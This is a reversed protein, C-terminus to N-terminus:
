PSLFSKGSNAKLAAKLLKPTQFWRAAADREAISTSHEMVNTQNMNQSLSSCPHSPAAQSQLMAQLAFHSLWFLGLGSICILEAEYM